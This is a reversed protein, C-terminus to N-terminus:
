TEFHTLRRIFWIGLSELTVMLGLMLWGTETGWLIQMSEPELWQLVILLLIPLCALIKGQLRGQATLAQLKDKIMQQNRLSHAIKELALALPGGTAYAIQMMAIATDISPINLRKSFNDLAQEMDLGLRQDNHLHIWEERLPSICAENLQQLAAQLGVGARLNASLILLAHPFQTALTQRYQQRHRQKLWQNFFAYAVFSFVFASLGSLICVLWFFFYNNIMNEGCM